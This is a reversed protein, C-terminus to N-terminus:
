RRCRAADARQPTGQGPHAPPRRPGDGPRLAPRGRSRVRRRCRRCLRVGPEPGPRSVGDGRGRGPRLTGGARRRPRAAPAGARLATRRRRGAQLLPAGRAGLHLRHRRAAPGGRRRRGAARGPGARARALARAPGPDWAAYYAASRAAQVQVYLDALRHKVAQFSGIARGFQEREKVYAVTRELAETPPGSPRPPSSLGRRRRGTAALAGAVDATREDAGSCSAECMGCNSAPRRVPDRGASTQRTRARPRGRRRTVLFLLTRSRAFGGTHAAVLLLSRATGTSCRTPRATCGGATRGAGGRGARRRGPRRGGVDGDANAGTLGLAPALGAGPVALTATREGRAILPLLAARQADTGLATISRRPSCPPPSCRPPCCRAARRRAPWPSNPPSAAPAGTSRPCPSDPCGSSTPSARGLARRRPRRPARRREQVDHPGCHKALLERLTRRIEDQEATFAADM